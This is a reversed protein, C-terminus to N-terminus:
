YIRKNKKIFEQELQTFCLKEWRTDNFKKYIYKKNKKLNQINKDKGREKTKLFLIISM